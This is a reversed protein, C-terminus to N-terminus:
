CYRSYIEVVKYKSGLDVILKTDFDKDKFFNVVVHDTETPLTRSIHFFVLGGFPIRYKSVLDGIPPFTATVIAFKGGNLDTILREVM